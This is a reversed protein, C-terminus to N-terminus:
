ISNKLSIEEGRGTYNVTFHFNTPNPNLNSATSLGDSVFISSNKSFIFDENSTNSMISNYILEASNNNTNYHIEYNSFWRVESVAYKLM